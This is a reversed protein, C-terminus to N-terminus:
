PGPKLESLVEHYRTPGPHRASHTHGTVRSHVRGADLRVTDVRDRRTVEFTSGEM